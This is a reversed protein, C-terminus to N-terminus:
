HTPNGIWKALKQQVAPESIGLAPNCLILSPWSGLFFKAVDDLVVFDDVPHRDLWARIEEDRQGKKISGAFWQSIPQLLECLVEDELYLRWASSVVVAIDTHGALLKELIHLHQFTEPWGAKIQAATLPPRAGAIAKHQHLCGDFDLFIVRRQNPRLMM